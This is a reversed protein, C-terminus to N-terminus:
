APQGDPPDKPATKKSRQIIDNIRNALQAPSMALSVSGAIQTNLRFAPHRRSLMEIAKLKTADSRVRLTRKEGKTDSSPDIEYGAFLPTLMAPIEGPEMPVGGAHFLQTADGFALISLEREIREATLDIKLALSEEGERVLKAIAPIALLRTATVNAGKRSYGARVVAASANRDVLWEKAFLRQRPSLM